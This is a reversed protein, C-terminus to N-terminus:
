FHLEYLISPCNFFSFYDCSYPHFDRHVLIIDYLFYYSCRIVSLVLVACVLFCDLLSIPHQQGICLIIIINIIIIILCEYKLKVRAMQKNTQLLDLIIANYAFTKIFAIYNQVWASKTARNKGFREFERTKNTVPLRILM